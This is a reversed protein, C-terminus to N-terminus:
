KGEGSSIWVVTVNPDSTAFVAANQGPAVDVSVSNSTAMPVVAPTRAHKNHAVVTATILLAAAIPLGALLAVRSPRSERVTTTARRNLVAATLLDLDGALREARTRCEDCWRVHAALLTNGGRLEAPEVVLMAERAEICNM